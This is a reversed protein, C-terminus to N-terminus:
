QPMSQKQDVLTAADEPDPYGPTPGTVIRETSSLWPAFTRFEVRHTAHSVLAELFYVFSQPGLALRAGSGIEVPPNSFSEDDAASRDVLIEAIAELLTKAEDRRADDGDLRSTVVYLRFRHKRRCRLKGVHEGPSSGEWSIVVAPFEGVRAKWLDDAATGPGIGEYTVIRRAAGPATAAAGGLLGPAVVQAELELGDVPPDWRVRTGGAFNVDSGGLVSVVPVVVGDRTVVEEGATKLLRSASAQAVGAASVHIPVGYTNKPLVVDASVARARVHGAARSGTLPALVSMLAREIRVIAGRSM